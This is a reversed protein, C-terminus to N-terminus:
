GGTEGSSRDVHLRPDLERQPQGLNCCDRPCVQNGAQNTAEQPLLRHSHIAYTVRDPKRHHCSRWWTTAVLIATPGIEVVGLPWNRLTM